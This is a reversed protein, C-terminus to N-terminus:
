HTLLHLLQLRVFVAIYIVMEGCFNSDQDVDPVNGETQSNGDTHFEPSQNITISSVPPSSISPSLIGYIDEYIIKAESELYKMAELDVDYVNNDRSIKILKEAVYNAGQHGSIGVRGALFPIRRLIEDIGVYWIAILPDGETFLLKYAHPDALLKVWQNKALLSKTLFFVIRKAKIFDKGSDILLSQGPGGDGVCKIKLKKLKSVIPDAIEKDDNNYILLFDYYPSSGNSNIASEQYSQPMDSERYPSTEDELLNQKPMARHADSKENAANTSRQPSQLQDLKSHIFLTVLKSGARTNKADALTYTIHKRLAMDKTQWTFESLMLLMKHVSHIKATM